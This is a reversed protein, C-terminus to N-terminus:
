PPFAPRAHSHPPCLHTLPLNRSIHNKAGHNCKRNLLFHADAFVNRQRLCGGFTLCYLRMWSHAFWPRDALDIQQRTKCLKYVLFPIQMRVHLPPAPPPILLLVINQCNQKLHHIHDVVNGKRQHTHNHACLHIQVSPFPHARSKFIAMQYDEERGNIIRRGGM